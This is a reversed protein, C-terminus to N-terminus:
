PTRRLLAVLVPVGCVATVVGIPIKKPGDSWGASSIASPSSSSVSPSRSLCCWRSAGDRWSAPSIPARDARRLRDARGRRRREGGPLPCLALALSFQRRYAFGSRARSRRRSACSTSPGLRLLALGAVTFPLLFLVHKWSRAYLSGSLWELLIEIRASGWGAILGIAVAHLVAGVAIGCITIAFRDSIGASRWRM